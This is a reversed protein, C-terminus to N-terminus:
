PTAARRAAAREHAERRLEEWYEPTVEEGPEKLAELLKLELAEKAQRKQEARVLERVYESTSSYGGSSVQADVFAKLSEPLSVNMTTM